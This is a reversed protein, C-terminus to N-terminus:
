VPCRPIGSSSPPNDSCVKCISEAAHEPKKCYSLNQYWRNFLQRFGAVDDDQLQSFTANCMVSSPQGTQCSWVGEIYTDDLGYAHGMEHLIVNYGDRDSIHMQTGNASVYARDLGPVVTVSLHIYNPDPCALTPGCQIRRICGDGTLVDVKQTVYPSIPQLAGTWETVARTLHSKITENYSGGLCIRAAGFVNKLMFTEKVYVGFRLFEDNVDLTSSPSIGNVELTESENDSLTLGPDNSYGEGSLFLGVILSLASLRM